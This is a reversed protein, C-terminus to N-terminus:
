TSGPSYIMAEVFVRECEDETQVAITALPKFGLSSYLRYGMPSAFVSINMGLQTAMHVGDQCLATGAGRRQFEPHTALIQLQFHNRGYSKDFFNAKATKTTHKWAAIRGKDGDRRPALSSSHLRDGLSGSLNSIDWVAFALIQPVGTSSNPYTEALTVFWGNSRNELFDRYRERTHLRHDDPFLQRYPFRYNWQPDMPMAALGIDLIADLDDISAQRVCIRRSEKELAPLTVRSSVAATTAMAVAASSVFPSSPRHDGLLCRKLLLPITRATSSSSVFPLSLLQLPIKRRPQWRVRLQMIVDAAAWVRFERRCRSQAYRSQLQPWDHEAMEGGGSDSAQVRSPRVEAM